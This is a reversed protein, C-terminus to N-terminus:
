NNRIRTNHAGIYIILDEMVRNPSILEGGFDSVTFRFVADNGTGQTTFNGVAISGTLPNNRDGTWDLSSTWEDDNSYQWPSAAGTEINIRGSHYTFWSIRDVGGQDSGTLTFNYTVGRRLMLTIANFNTNQDFTHDFGDGTVRFSFAPLTEDELPIETECSLVTFTFFVATVYKLLYKFNIKTTYM